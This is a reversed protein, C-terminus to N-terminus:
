EHYVIHSEQIDKFHIQFTQETLLSLYSTSLFVSYQLEVRVRLVERTDVRALLSISDLSSYSDRTCLTSDLSDEDNRM